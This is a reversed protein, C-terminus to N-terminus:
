ITTCIDEHHICVGTLSLKSRVPNGQSLYFLPIYLIVYELNIAWSNGPPAPIPVTPISQHMLHGQSHESWFPLAPLIAYFIMSRQNKAIALCTVESISDLEVAKYAV